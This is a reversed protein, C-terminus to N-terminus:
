VRAMSKWCPTMIEIAERCNTRGNWALPMLDPGIIGNLTENAMEHTFVAEEGMALGFENIGIECGYTWFAKTLLVEHTQAAQPIV